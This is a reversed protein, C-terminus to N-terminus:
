PPVHDVRLPLHYIGLLNGSHRKVSAGAPIEYGCWRSHLEELGVRIETLALHIGLCKHAGVGWSLHAPGERGPRVSTPDAYVEPDRGAAGTLVVVSEGEEIRQGGLEQPSTAVRAVTILPELRLLEDIIADRSEVDEFFRRQLAADTALHAVINCLSAATTDIGALLVQVAIRCVEADTLRSDGDVSGELLVDIVTADDVHPFVERHARRSAVKEEVYAALEAGCRQSRDVREQPPFLDSHLIGDKLACVHDIDDIPLGMLTFFTRCTFPAAFQSMLEVNSALGIADLTEGAFGRALPERAGAAAASFPRALLRRYHTHEPPDTSVLSGSSSGGAGYRSMGPGVTPIRSSFNRTDRLVRSVDEFRSVIWYGGYRESRAVPQADRIADFMSYLDDPLGDDFLDFQSFDWTDTTADWMM